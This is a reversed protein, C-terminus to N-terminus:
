IYFQLSPISNDDYTGITGAFCGKQFNKEAEVIGVCASNLAPFVEPDAVQVLM